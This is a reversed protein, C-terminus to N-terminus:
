ATPPTGHWGDGNTAKPKLPALAPAEMPKPPKNPEEGLPPPPELDIVRLPTLDAALECFQFTIDPVRLPLLDPSAALKIEAALPGDIKDAVWRATETTKIGKIHQSIAVAQILTLSKPLEVGLKKQLKRRESPPCPLDATFQLADAMPKRRPRGGPNGSHGSKFQWPALWAARVDKDTKILPPEAPVTARDAPGSISNGISNEAQPESPM